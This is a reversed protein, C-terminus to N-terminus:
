RCRRRQQPRLRPDDAPPLRRDPRLERLLGRARDARRGDHRLLPLRRVAREGEAQGPRPDAGLRTGTWKAICSWGEVCDHRTVQSQAPMNRLEDLSFSSSRERGARHGPLTTPSITPRSRWITTADASRDLREAAAAPPNRSEDYTARWRRSARRPHAAGPLDAHQRARPLQAGSQRTQGLFDFQDCGALVLSSVGAASATLFTRRSLILKGM